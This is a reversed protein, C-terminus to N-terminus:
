GQPDAREALAGVILSILLEHNAATPPAEGVVRGRRLVVARDAVQMVHELNHSILIVSLGRSPLARVLRLVNASERMGLAATPEDLIVTRTAFAVARAVAVAQRQGGSMLGVLGNPDGLSVGLDDMIARYEQRMERERLLSAGRWRRPAVRERGIFFNAVGPLNDFVALDQYVTEIGHRRADAPSHFRCRTGDVVIDGEDLALAGSLCKILTSKGAGNDGLLALVEGRNVKLDAGDLAVVAGYSKRAGRVELAPPESTGVANSRAGPSIVDHVTM